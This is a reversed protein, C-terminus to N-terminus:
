RNVGSFVTQSIPFRTDALVWDIGLARCGDQIENMWRHFNKLYEDRVAIPLLTLADRPNELSVFRRLAEFPFKLEDYDLVHYFLLENKQARLIRLAPLIDDWAEVDFFDSLLFIKGRKPCANALDNLADAFTQRPRSQDSSADGWPPNELFNLIEKWHGDGTSPRLSMTKFGNTATVGVLDRQALAIRALVATLCQAYELKTLRKERRDDTLNEESPADTESAADGKEANWDRPVGWGAYNMSASFDVFFYFASNTEERFRRLFLKGTRLFVRWDIFKPDNGNEWPRHDQFESSFGMRFSRHAGFSMGDALRKMRLRFAGLRALAAPDFFSFCPAENGTEINLRQSQKMEEMFETKKM